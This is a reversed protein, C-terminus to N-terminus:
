KLSISMRLYNLNEETVDSEWLLPATIKNKNEATTSTKNKLYLLFIHRRQVRRDVKKRIFNQFFLTAKHTIPNKSPLDVALLTIYSSYGSNM